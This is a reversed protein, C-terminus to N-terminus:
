DSKAIANKEKTLKDFGVHKMIELVQVTDVKSVKKKGQYGFGWYNVIPMVTPDFAGNSFNYINEAINFNEIFYEYYDSDLMSLYDTYTTNFKTIIADKEYTSVASNINVLLGDVDKQLQKPSDTKAIINYTTGMTSGHITNYPVLEAQCSTL